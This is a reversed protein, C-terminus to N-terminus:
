NNSGILEICSIIMMFYLVPVTRTDANQYFYHKHSSNQQCYVKRNGEADINGSNYHRGGESSIVSILLFISRSM